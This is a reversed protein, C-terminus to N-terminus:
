HGFSVIHVHGDVDRWSSLRHCSLDAQIADTAEFYDCAWGFSGSGSAYSRARVGLFGAVQDALYVVGM